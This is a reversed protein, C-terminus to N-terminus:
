LYHVNSSRGYSVNTQRPCLPRQLVVLPRVDGCVWIACGRMTAPSSATDSM